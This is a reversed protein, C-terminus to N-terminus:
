LAQQGRRLPRQVPAAARGDGSFGGDKQEHLAGRGLGLLLVPDAARESLAAGLEARPLAPIEERVPSGTLVVKKAKPVLKETEAYSIMVCDVKGALLRTAVGPTANVELMAAPVGSRVAAWVMPFSAYGGTGVVIEPKQARLVKKCSSVAALAERVARLNRRLGRLNKERSLGELPFADIPYGAKEALREEINGRGGSLRIESAEQRSIYDAAAIAPNVHGATGGGAFIVRM